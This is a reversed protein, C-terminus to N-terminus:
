ERIFGGVQQKWFLAYVGDLDILTTHNGEEVIKGSEVVLIRDMKQITSLRHAIVITTRNKMLADLAEQIYKESVSDLSSTAEDLILIPANKLMARAIAIRQREGGSLKVGREGVLTDYGQPLKQIFEHARARKAVEEIEEDTAKPKGYAINEKISRHFLLPEQPVYAIKRRLDDQTINRIDQGDIRISGEQIDIFRLLIKTITTKGAGSHGMIGIKEGSQIHLHFDELVKKGKDEYVFSVNDFLVDGQSILCKEPSLPDKVSIDTEFIEVMEKADALSKEIDMLARGFGWVANFTGFIYLQVLVVTGVTAHGDSWLDAVFYMAGFELLIFLFGQIAVQYNRMLWASRRAREQLHTIEQFSIQEERRSGFMKITLANTIADAHRGTVQSDMNAEKTDYPMKIRAFWLSLCIFVIIWLVYMWAILPVNLFLVIIAGLLEVFRLVIHWLINNFINSFSWVFRKSKSVLSGSFNNTFFFYSHRHLREFADNALDRLISSEFLISVYDGLRYLINYAIIAGGLVWVWFFVDQVMEQRIEGLSIIDIINKYILPSLTNAIIGACIYSVFLLIGSVPYNKIHRWYYSLITRFSILM